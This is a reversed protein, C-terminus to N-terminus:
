HEPIIHFFVSSFILWLAVAMFLLSLNLFRTVNNFSIDIFVEISRYFLSTIFSFSQDNSVFSIQVTDRSIDNGYYEFDTIPTGTDKNIFYLSLQGYIQKSVAVQGNFGYSISISSSQTQITGNNQNVILTDLADQILIAITMFKQDIYQGDYLTVFFKWVDGSTQIWRERVVGNHHDFFGNIPQYIYQSEWTAYIDSSIDDGSLTEMGQLICACGDLYFQDPYTLNFSNQKPITQTKNAIDLFRPRHSTASALFFLIFTFVLTPSSFNM